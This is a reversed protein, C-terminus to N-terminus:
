WLLARNLAARVAIRRTAACSWWGGHGIQLDASEPRQHPSSTAHTSALPLIRSKPHSRISVPFACSSQIPRLVERSSPSEVLAILDAEWGSFRRQLHRCYFSRFRECPTFGHYDFATTGDTVFVHSGRAGHRPLILMAQFASNAFRELFAAALIHCAGAAFFTRDSRNWSSSLDEKARKSRFIM